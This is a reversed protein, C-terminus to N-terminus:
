PISLGQPNSDSRRSCQMSGVSLFAEIARRASRDARDDTEADTENAEACM